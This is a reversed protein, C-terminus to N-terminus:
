AGAGARVTDDELLAVLKDLEQTWGSRHGRVNEVPDSTSDFGTEVVTLVTGGPVDALTFVFTTATTEDFAGTRAGGADDNNWRYTVSTQPDIAIRRLAVPVREPFAITGAGTPDLAVPAFWRSLHAPETVAAWVSERPAAIRISRRVTLGVEDAVAGPNRTPSM